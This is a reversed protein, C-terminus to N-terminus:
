RGGLKAAADPLSPHVARVPVPREGPEEGPDQQPQLDVGDHERGRPVSVLGHQVEAVALAEPKRGIWPRQRERRRIQHTGRKRLLQDFHSSPLFSLCRSYHPLFPKCVPQEAGRLALALVTSMVNEVNM